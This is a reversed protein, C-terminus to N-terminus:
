TKPQQLAWRPLSCHVGRSGNVVQTVKLDAALSCLAYADDRSLGSQRNVLAIMDRLAEVMAQDLDPDFAMTIVHTPTEARPRKLHAKKEVGLRFTGRLSTEIATLNVEGHGQAAHGDGVSFLGGAQFVPLYLTTGAVLEKNDINGGFARPVVSTQRGWAPPPATGMCGFFPELPVSLGWPMRAVKRATDIAIHIIRADPFDDPLAGSLPRTLNYGWNQRLTVDLIEVKLADGPEAGEVAVPGTLIHPGPGNSVEAHIARHEPLVTFGSNSPPLHNPAGSVSEMTVTDGPKITLVPPQAADFYGWHVTQPSCAVTHHQSV